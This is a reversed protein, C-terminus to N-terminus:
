ISDFLIKKMLDQHSEVILQLILENILEIMLWQVVLYLM